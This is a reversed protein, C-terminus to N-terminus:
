VLFYHLGVYVYVHVCKIFVERASMVTPATFQGRYEWPISFKAMQKKELLMKEGKEEWELKGKVENLKIWVM